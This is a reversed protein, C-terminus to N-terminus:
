QSPSNTKMLVDRLTFVLDQSSRKMSMEARLAKLFLRKSPFAPTAMSKRLVEGLIGRLLYVTNQKADSADLAALLSSSPITATRAAAVVKQNHQTVWTQIEQENERPPPAFDFSHQTM